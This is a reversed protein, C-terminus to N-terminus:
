EEAPLTYIAVRSKTANVGTAGRSSNGAAVALYQHGDIEYTSVGGGIPANDINDM